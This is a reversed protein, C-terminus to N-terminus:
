LLSERKGEIEGASEMLIRVVAEPQSLMPAHGSDLSVKRVNAGEGEMRDIMEQQREPSIILDKECHVYTSPIYRYGPYTFKGNFSISSQNTLQSFYHNQEDEPLDNFILPASGKALPLYDRGPKDKFEEIMDEGRFERGSMGVPVLSGSLYVLSVLAGESKGQATREARSFGRTGETGPRAGYSNMVLVVNKGQDVLTHLTKRIHQADDELTAPGEPRPKASLLPTEVAVYGKSILAATVKHYFTPPSFSGPVLVFAINHSAM